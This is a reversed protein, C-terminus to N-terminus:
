FSMVLTGCPTPITRCSARPNVQPEYLIDPLEDPMQEDNSLDGGAL